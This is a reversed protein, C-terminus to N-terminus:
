MAEKKSEKYITYDPYHKQACEPCIGHSFVISSYREFYAELRTWYGQDDRIKKCSTCIPLLGRLTTVEELARELGENKQELKELNNALSLHAEVATKFTLLVNDFREGWRNEKTDVICITGFVAGDPWFLPYGLYAFIGAKATPSDAWAPDKRADVVSLRQRTRATSECYIGELPMRTGSSFPNAAIINSRFVELEPPQLRNIMVSPVVLMQAILDVIRQWVGVIDDPIVTTVTGMKM